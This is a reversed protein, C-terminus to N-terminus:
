KAPSSHAIELQSPFKITAAGWPECSGRGGIPMMKQGHESDESLYM